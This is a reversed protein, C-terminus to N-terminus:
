TSWFFPEMIQILNCLFNPFLLFMYSSDPTPARKENDKAIFGYLNMPIRIMMMLFWIFEYPNQDDDDFAIYIWPSESWHLSETWWRWLLTDIWLCKSYWWFVYLNMPSRIMMTLFVYLNVPIGIMMLIGYLKMPSRIIVKLLHISEHPNQDTWTNQDDDDFFRISEYLNQADFWRFVYLQMPSRIMMTLFTFM